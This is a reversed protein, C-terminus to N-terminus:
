HTVQRQGGLGAEFMVLQRCWETVQRAHEAEQALATQFRDAAEGLGMGRTLEVLLQWGAGDILEVAQLAQLCQLLSTRPDTIVQLQGMVAVGSVDADPTQATSDAGLTELVQRVMRFHDMEEQRFHRLQDVKVLAGVQGRQLTECKVIMREYLRVGSREFALREGLKNVLLELNHGQAKQMVAGAAGKLTGPTPVSGLAEAEDIFRRQLSALASPQGPAVGGAEVNRLMAKSQVPAMDIGTRNMGMHSSREM